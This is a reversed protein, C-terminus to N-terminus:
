DLEFSQGMYHEADTVHLLLLLLFLVSLFFFLFFFLFTISFCFFSCVFFFVFVSFSLCFLDSVGLYLSWLSNLKERWQRMLVVKREEKALWPYLYLVVSLAVFVCVLYYAPSPTLVAPDCQPLVAPCSCCWTTVLSLFNYTNPVQTKHLPWGRAAWLNKPHSVGM